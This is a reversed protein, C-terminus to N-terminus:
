FFFFFVIQGLVGVSMKAIASEEILFALISDQASYAWVFKLSILSGFEPNVTNTASVM